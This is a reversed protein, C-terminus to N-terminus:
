RAGGSVIVYAAIGAYLVAVCSLKIISNQKRPAEYLNERKIVELKM